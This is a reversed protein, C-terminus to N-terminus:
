LRAAAAEDVMWVLRGNEPAVYQAPFDDPQHPGHLVRALMDAKKAGSVLFMVEHASNVVPFTLTIRWSDQQPVYNAVCRREREHLAATHPFMSLTHGDGGMGLLVLNFVGDEGLVDRLLWDYADAAVQTDDEGRMRHIQSEIVPVHALLTEHAMRYNSDPHDPPVAREDGWFVHVQTWDLRSRFAESALLEYLPRPTSGGVLAVIFRGQAAIAQQGLEVFHEAAAHILADIDGYRHVETM